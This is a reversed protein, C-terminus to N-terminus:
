PDSQGGRQIDQSGKRQFSVGQTHASGSIKWKPIDKYDNGYLLGKNFSKTYVLIYRTMLFDVNM